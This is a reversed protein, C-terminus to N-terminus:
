RAEMYFTHPVQCGLSEILGSNSSGNYAHPSDVSNFTARKLELLQCFGWVFHILSIGMCFTHSFDGCL